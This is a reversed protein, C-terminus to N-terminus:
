LIVVFLAANQASWHIYKGAGERKYLEFLLGRRAELNEALRSLPQPKLWDLYGQVWYHEKHITYISYRLEQFELNLM